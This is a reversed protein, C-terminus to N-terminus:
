SQKREANADDDEVLRQFHSQMRELDPDLGTVLQFTDAAQSVAMLGGHMTRCGRARAARLLETELPRYVIDAVWHEARLYGVDFPIGPHQHMGIPTCQVIGDSGALLQELEQVDAGRVSAAHRAGLSEAVEDARDRDLDVVVLYEVGIRLLADGVASGAGGAGLMVVQNTAAGPLGLRFAREFGTTDTNHGFRGHETFRVTNVAGLAAALPDVDDLLPIVDRKCPHTVNVADFGLMEAWDLVRRLDEPVLELVTLDIPRYVYNLRHARGEAM